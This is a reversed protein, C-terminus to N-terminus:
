WSTNQAFFSLRSRKAPRVMTARGLPQGRTIALVGDAIYTLSLSGAAEVAVRVINSLPATTDRRFTLTGNDNSALMPPHQRPCASM